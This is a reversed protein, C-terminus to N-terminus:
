LFSMVADCEQDGSASKFYVTVDGDSSVKIHRAGWLFSSRAATARAGLQSGVDPHSRVLAGIALIHDNDFVIAGDISAM